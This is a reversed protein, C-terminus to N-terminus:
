IDLIKRKLIALDFADVVGDNSLDGRSVTLTGLNLLYKQLMIADNVSLVADDNVDGPMTKKKWQAYLTHDATATVKSYNTVKTGGTKATYWGAFDYGDRTPIPLASKRAYVYDYVVTRSTESVSGQNADFNVTYVGAKTELSSSQRTNGECDVLLASNYFAGYTNFDSTKVIVTWTTDSTRHATYIKSDTGKWSTTSVCMHKIGNEDCTITLAYGDKTISSAKMTFTSKKWRAYLTHDGTATVKTADTVKTGGTKATYWGTFTYGSKCPIPLSGGRSYAHNYVVTRSTESVNGQDADFKVTYIGAKTELSSSQRTNGTYDTILATSYFAGYTGFDATKVNVTWTTNSTQKATYTKKDTGKWSSTVVSVSKVGNDDDCTITLTYGDKTINSAKMSTLQPPTTDMVLDKIIFLQADSASEKNLQLDAGDNQSNNAVTLCRTGSCRPRLMYYNGVKVLYWSQSSDKTTLIGTGDADAANAVELAKGGYYTYIGYSGDEFQMFHWTYKSAIMSTNAYRAYMKATGDYSATVLKGTKANIIQAKFDEGIQTIDGQTVTVNGGNMWYPDGNATDIVAAKLFYTGTPVSVSIEAKFGHNKSSGIVANVDSRYIDTYISHGEVPTTSNETNYLYVDVRVQENLDDPDAGWGSILIKRFSGGFSDIHGMPKRNTITVSGTDQDPSEDPINESDFDVKEDSGAIKVTNEMINSYNNLPITSFDLVIYAFDNYISMLSKLDEARDSNFFAQIRGVFSKDQIDIFKHAYQLGVLHMNLMMNVAATYKKANSATKNTLFEKKADSMAKELLSQVEDLIKMKYYQEITEDTSFLVNSVLKSGQQALFLVKLYPHSICLDAWVNDLTFKLINEGATTAGYFVAALMKGIEDGYTNVVSSIALKMTKDTCKSYMNTLVSIQPRSLKDVTGLNAAMDILDFVTFAVKSARDVNKMLDDASTTIGSLNLRNVLNKADTTLVGNSDFVKISKLKNYFEKTMDGNADRILIGDVKSYTEQYYSAVTGLYELNLAKYIESYGTKFSDVGNSTGLGYYLWEYIVSVYLSLEEEGMFKGPDTADSGTFTAMRWATLANQYNVNNNLKSVIDRYYDDFEIMRQSYDDNIYYDALYVDPDPFEVKSSLATKSNEADVAKVIDTGIPALISFVFAMLALLAVTKNLKRM